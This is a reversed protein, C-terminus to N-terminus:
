GYTDRPGRGPVSRPGRRWSPAAPGRVTVRRVVGPGLEEQLRSLLVPALLRLQTAWATSDALVVLEGDAGTQPRAHAALEAGVIAPWRALAAGLAADSQWGRDEVLRGVTAVLPQPDREDPRAGSYASDTRAPAPGGGASPAVQSPGTRRSPQGPAHGRRRAAARAAALAQRALQEGSNPLPDPLPDPLVDGDAPDPVEAPESLGGM